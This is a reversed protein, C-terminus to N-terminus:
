LAHWAADGFVVGSNPRPRTAAYEEEVFITELMNYVQNAAPISRKQGTSFILLTLFLLHFGLEKFEKPYNIPPEVYRRASCHLASRLARARVTLIPTGRPTGGVGVGPYRIYYSHSWASRAIITRM